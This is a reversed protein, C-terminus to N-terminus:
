TFSPASFYFAAIAVDNINVIGNADLDAVPNYNPSGLSSGFSFAVTAVDVIDVKGDRDIDIQRTVLVAATAVGGQLTVTVDSSLPYPNIALNLLFSAQLIRTQNQLKISPLSYTKTYIVTGTTSNRAV